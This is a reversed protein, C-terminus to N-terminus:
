RRSVEPDLDKARMVQEAFFYVAEFSARSTISFVILAGESERMYQHFCLSSASHEDTLLAASARSERHACVLNSWAQIEFADRWCPPSAM